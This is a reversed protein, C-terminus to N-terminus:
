YLKDTPYDRQNSDIEKKYSAAEWGAKALAMFTPSLSKTRWNIGMFGTCGYKYADQADKLTRGAWFQPSTLGPDDELWSIEWKPRGKIDAFAPEVPTQGTQRNIVSFPMNKPFLKNFEARNRSPGLVWGCTALTFDADVKKAAAIAGQIDKETADVAEKTEGEWTWGEPTWFWYYDLPHTAKIRAFMGEYIEQKVGDSNIDKNEASLKQKLETPISLPTETGICTKVGLDKALSFSNHLLKGVKDIIQINEKEAHPWASINKMYDAGYNDTEFIQSAGLNFESTKKPYYNWTSDNTNSHLVPYAAKVIGDANFQDKTGIWVMPEAKAWGGFNDSAPYTHFGFFNMGMKPLQTIIAEYDNENWWDPGEPFDHFPQIGRLAFSPEYTKDFGSLDIIKLKEDPIIDENIDFGIGTSGLFKYAGYVTGIESGGVILLSNNPMSKLQYGDGNLKYNINIKKTSNFNKLESVTAVLISNTPIQENVTIAKLVPLDVTRVYIYRQLEKAALLETGKADKFHLIIPVKAFATITTTLFLIILAILNNM